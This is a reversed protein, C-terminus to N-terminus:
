MLWEISNKLISDLQEAYKEAHFNLHVTKGEGYNHSTIAPIVGSDGIKNSKFEAVIEGTTVTQTCPNGWFSSFPINDELVFGKTTPHEKIISLSGKESSFPEFQMKAYGLTEALVDNETTIVKDILLISQSNEVFTSINRVWRPPMELEPSIIVIDYAFLSNVKDCGECMDNWNYFNTILWNKIQILSNPKAPNILLGIKVARTYGRIKRPTTNKSEVNFRLTYVGKKVHKEVKFPFVLLREESPKLESIKELTKDLILGPTAATKIQIERAKTKGDNKITLHAKYSKSKSVNSPLDVTLALFPKGKKRKRTNKKKEEEEKQKEKRTKEKLTEKVQSSPPSRGFYTTPCRPLRNRYYFHYTGFGVSPVFIGGVVGAIIGLPTGEEVRIIQSALNSWDGQNDMVDFYITHTGVSLSSISFDESTGLLGDLSSTWRYEVIYGDPDYGSGQFSVSEGEVASERGSIPKISAIAANPPNNREPGDYEFVATLDHNANMTIIYNLNSGVNAGNLIWHSFSWGSAPSATVSVSAGSQYSLVGTSPNTTGAGSILITLDYLSEPIEPDKEFVATLDHNDFMSIVYNPNTGADVGDLIWHSFSWGSDASAGINVDGPEYSITGPSPTTSGSGSVTITLPVFVPVEQVVLPSFTGPALFYYEDTSSFWEGWYFARFSYNGTETPTYRVSYEGKTSSNFVGILEIGSPPKWSQLLFDHFVDTSTPPLTTFSVVIEAIQNVGIPDPSVTVETIPYIIVVPEAQVSFFITKSTSNYTDGTSNFLEGPYFFNFSYTGVQDPTYTIAKSGAPDSTYPGMIQETGDPTTVTIKFGHFVDTSTPPYPSVYAIILLEQGVGIKDSPFGRFIATTEVEAAEVNPHAAILISIVLILFVIIIAPGNKILKM